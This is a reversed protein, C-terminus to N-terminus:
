VVQHRFCHTLKCPLALEKIKSVAGSHRATRAAAGSSCVGAFAKLELSCRSVMYDKRTEYM